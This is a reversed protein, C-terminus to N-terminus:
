LMRMKNKEIILSRFDMDMKNLLQKKGVGKLAIALDPLHNFLAELTSDLLTALRKCRVVIRFINKIQSASSKVDFIALVQSSQIPQSESKNDWLILKIYTHHETLVSENQTYETTSAVVFAPKRVELLTFSEKINNFFKLEVGETDLLSALIDAPVDDGIVFVFDQSQNENACLVEEDSRIPMLQESENQISFKLTSEENNIETHVENISKLDKGSEDLEDYSFSVQDGGLINRSADVGRLFYGIEHKSMAGNNKLDQYQSEMQHMHDQLVDLGLFGSAGKLSHFVRFVADYCSQFAGGQDLSLLCSEAEDLLELAEVKFEEIEENTFEAM